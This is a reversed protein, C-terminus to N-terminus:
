QSCEQSGDPFVESLPSAKCFFHPESLPLIGLPPSPVTQVFAPFPARAPFPNAIAQNPPLTNRGIPAASALCIGAPASRSANRLGCRPTRLEGQPDLADPNSSSGPQGARPCVAAVMSYCGAKRPTTRPPPPILGGLPLENTGGSYSGGSRSQSPVDAKEGRRTKQFKCLVILLFFCPARM